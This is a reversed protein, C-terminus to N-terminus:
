KPLFRFKFFGAGPGNSSNFVEVRNIQFYILIKIFLTYPILYKKIAYSTKILIEIM